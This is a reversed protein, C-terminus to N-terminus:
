FLNLQKVIKGSKTKTEGLCESAFRKNGADFYDKDLECGWYDFGMKYAAIRSSQSGMMPDFIKDGAQAYNKLIWAYLAVPKQTVHIKEKETQISLKLMKAPKNFSSWAYECMALTLDFPQMKDWILFHKNPPLGFYNGGWIIQNKSVRFLEDFFESTPITEDWTKKEGYMHMQRVPNSAIGIGYNPDAIALDFYKDPLERMYAVCDCNRVESIPNNM